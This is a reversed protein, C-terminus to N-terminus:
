GCWKILYQLRRWLVRSDVVEEVEYESKGDVVVPEPPYLHQGPLLDGQTPELLSVHFVPHVNM